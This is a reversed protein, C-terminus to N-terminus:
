FKPDFDYEHIRGDNNIIKHGGSRETKKGNINSSEHFAYEAEGYVHGGQPPRLSRVSGSSISPEWVTKDNFRESILKHVLDWNGDAAANSIDTEGLPLAQVITIVVLLLLTLKIM